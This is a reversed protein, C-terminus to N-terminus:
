SAPKTANAPSAAAKLADLSAKSFYFVQARHNTALMKPPAGPPTFPLLTYESHDELRGPNRGSSNMLLERDSFMAEPLHVSPVNIGQARQCERAWVQTWTYFTKGDSVMHLISWTLILGDPIFNAQVLSVPLREGASPWVSRRCVVDAKFVSVPFGKEKLGAYEMPFAGPARLDKVVVDEIEGDRMKKLKLVGAQEWETDPVAECALVTMLKKTTRYGERLVRAAEDIDYDKPLQFPFVYRLYGKPGIRELPMLAPVDDFMLSGM